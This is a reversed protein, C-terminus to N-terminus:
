LLGIHGGSFLVLGEKLDETLFPHPQMQKTILTVVDLAEDKDLLLGVPTLFPARFPNYGRLNEDARLSIQQEPAFILSTKRHKEENFGM